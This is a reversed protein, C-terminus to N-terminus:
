VESEEDTITTKDEYGNNCQTSHGANCYHKIVCGVEEACGDCFDVENGNFDALIECTERYKCDECYDKM